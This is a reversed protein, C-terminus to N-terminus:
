EVVHVELVLENLPPKEREWSRRQVLHITARGLAVATISLAEDRSYGSPPPGGAPPHGPTDLVEKSVWVAGGDGDISVEWGYGASGLGQLRLNHTEGVRLTVSSAEM